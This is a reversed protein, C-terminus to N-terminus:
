QSLNGERTIDKVTFDKGSLIGKVDESASDGTKNNALLNYLIYIM